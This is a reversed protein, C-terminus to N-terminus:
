ALAGASACPRRPDRGAPGGFQRLRRHRRADRPRPSTSRSRASSARPGRGASSCATPWSCAGRRPRPDRAPDHAPRAGVDGRARRAPRRAHPRRARRLARRAALDADRRAADPGARGAPADRGVPRPPLPGRLGALGFRALTRRAAAEADAARRRGPPSRGPRQRAGDAVADPCRGPADPHPPRPAAASPTGDILVRGTTRNADPRRAGLPPHEQRMGVPGVLAVFEGPAVRLDLGDLVRRAGSPSPRPGPGRRVPRRPESMTSGDPSAVSVVSAPPTACSQARSARWWCARRRTLPLELGCGASPLRGRPVAALLEYDEGGTAALVAATAASAGRRGRRRRGRAPVRDSNSARACTRERPRAPGADLALGDSLDMM